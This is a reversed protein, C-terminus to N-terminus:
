KDTGGNDKDTNEDSDEDNDSDQSNKDTDGNKLMEELKAFEEEFDEDPEDDLLSDIFAAPNDLHGATPLFDTHDWAKDRKETGVAVTARRWLEAAETVKPANLEIGVVKSFAQEASGGTSRRHSWAETLKATSPIRAGLAESVVHEAWGEVLALLTELRSAAVTNKSTIRPSLDM